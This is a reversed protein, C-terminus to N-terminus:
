TRAYILDLIGKEMLYGVGLLALTLASIFALAAIKRPALSQDM